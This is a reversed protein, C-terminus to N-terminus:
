MLKHTCTFHWSSKWQKEHSPVYIRVTLQITITHHHIWRMRSSHRWLELDLWGWPQPQRWVTMSDRLLFFHCLSDPSVSLVNGHLWKTGTCSKDPHGLQGTLLFSTSFSVSWCLFQKRDHKKGKLSIQTPQCDTYWHTMKNIVTTSTQTPAVPPLQCM